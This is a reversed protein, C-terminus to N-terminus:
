LEGQGEKDMARKRKEMELHQLCMIGIHSMHNHLVSVNHSHACVIDAESQTLPHHKM